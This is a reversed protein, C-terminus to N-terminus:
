GSTSRQTKYSRSSTHWSQGVNDAHEGGQLEGLREIFELPISFIDHSLLYERNKSVFRISPIIYMIVRGFATLGFLGESDKEILKANRLRSLHKSTEQPTASLKATLQGLRCKEVGIESLLTLRDMSALIFLLEALHELEQNYM